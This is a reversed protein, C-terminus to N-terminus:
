SLYHDNRNHLDGRRSINEPFHKTLSPVTRAQDDFRTSVTGTLQVTAMFVKGLM